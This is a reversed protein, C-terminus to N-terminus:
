PFVCDEHVSRRMGSWSLGLATSFVTMAIGRWSVRETM